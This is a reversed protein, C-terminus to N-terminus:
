IIEVSEDVMKFDDISEYDNIIELVSDLFETAEQTSTNERLYAPIDVCFDSHTLPRELVLREVMDPRLLRRSFDTDPYQKEIVDENFRILAERLSFVAKVVPESTQLKEDHEVVDSNSSLEITTLNSGDIPTALSKLEDVIPKLEANANKFWDTSWIRRIRWGLGELVGQRVRDRDRTSKDSHYSAGDCEIGMLYRGPMGPDRVALDLFYGAVGVQPVCEFGKKSLAEMVSIEFDSDPAKQQVGDHGILQGTRAFNLYAKLSKVGLSSEENAVIHEALMSSYVEIRSKARTFLVNLRRWGSAGSIPGFRQPMKAAGREQPGYTFSIFIVDREDGQVNELNKIFLPDSTALNQQYYKAFTPDKQLASELHDQILDRQKTNMAVVGLSEEPKSMLHKRIASVVALSEDQNVNNIFRGDSVYHFKIGFEDSADWPSPFVVLNGDYFKHNSFEILSEHRSRYHWRLQRKDFYNGVAELISESEELVGTESENMDSDNSTSKEFFSTPPLQKSDGVVVIQKGRAFCSLADQPKVQSAEDMVVIDFQLSGPPIFKAVAMPSMMFCPKYAIMADGARTVLNRISIHRAKKEMERHLLAGGTYNIARAGRTGAPIERDAILSAVRSRQVQKLDEDLQKFKNQLATQEHGSKQSLEPIEEYIELALTYYTAFKMADEAVERSVLNNSIYQNLREFGGQEMRERAFLYKVWSDLWISNEIAFRNREIVDKIGLGKNCCWEGLKSGIHGIFTDQYKTMLGLCNMLEQGSEKLESVAEKHSLMKVVKLLEPYSIEDEIIQAYQLTDVLINFDQPLESTNTLNLDIDDCFIHSCIDSDKLKLRLDQIQKFAKINIELEELSSTPYCLYQQCNKLSNVIINRTSELPKDASLLDLEQDTFTTERKFVVSLESLCDCVTSIDDALGKEALGQIGRLFDHNMSFLTQAFIVRKGFGIGYEARVNQYWRTMSNVLEFDTELGRFHDQLLRNAKEDNSYQECESQWEILEDLVDVFKNVDIKKEKTLRKMISKAQRWNPKIWSFLNSRALTERALKLEDNKPLDELKVKSELKEKRSILSNYREFLSETYTALEESDFLDDRYTLMGTPLDSALSMFTAFEKLSKTNGSLFVSIEEPLNPTLDSYVRDLKDLTKIVSDLVDLKKVVDNLSISKDICMSILTELSCEINDLLEENNLVEKTFAIEVQSYLKSVTRHREIFENLPEFSETSLKELRSFYVEGEPQPLTSWVSLLNRYYDLNENHNIFIEHFACKDFLQNLFTELQNTWNNLYDITNESSISVAEKNKVGFWPHSEWRGSEPLQKNTIDFYDYFVKLKELQDSLKNKNFSHGNVNFPRIEEFSLPSVKEKYLTAAMLIEHITIGTDKWLQNVMAAYSRLKERTSEYKDCLINYSEVSYSNTQQKLIREKFSDLVIKKKANDSHLNLCFDGLGAKDMRNKVVDLAAQKEAVFLVKKGQSLAASIINTITQSKGTGPPGEVVLNKGRLVDIVVSMQSSDADEVMPFHDHIQPVDDLVYSQMSSDSKVLLEGDYFFKRIVDHNLLNGEGAPWNSPDLDRYMLLKGLSLTALTAFRRVKWKRVLLNNSKRDLLEQIAEFYSEPEILKEENKPDIIDPLSLGFDRQLKERLILNQIIDEGTYRLTYIDVGRERDKNISVPILFLPALRKSNSDEKETWELFGLCLFLINNGTEEIATRANSGLKKAAQNLHPEYLIAQLNLDNHRGDEAYEDKLPLDFKNDIGIVGAWEKADPEKKLHTYKKKEEDWELYGHDILEQLSPSPVPCIKMVRDALLIKALENPLEDVCRIVDKRNQDVNLLRSRGASIDLLKDRMAEFNKSLFHDPYQSQHSAMVKSKENTQATNSQIYHSEDAEPRSAPKEKKLNILNGSSPNTDYKVTKLLQLIKKQLLINRKRSKRRSLELDIERLVEPEFQNDQVLKELTGIQYRSFDNSM